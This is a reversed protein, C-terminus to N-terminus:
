FFNGTFTQLREESLTYEGVKDNISSDCGISMREILMKLEEVEIVSENSYVIMNDIDEQYFRKILIHKRCCRNGKPIFLRRKIYVQQRAEYPVTIIDIKSSCIFCSSHTSKVRPFPLHVCQVEPKSKSEKEVYSPDQAESHQSDADESISSQSSFESVIKEVSCMEKKQPTYMVKRCSNCLVDGIEVNKNLITKLKEAEDDTTIVKKQGVFKWSYIGCKICKSHKAKKPTEVMDEDSLM